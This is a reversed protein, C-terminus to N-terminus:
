SPTEECWLVIRGAIGGALAQATLHEREQICLAATPFERRVVTPPENLDAGAFLLVTLTWAAASAIV